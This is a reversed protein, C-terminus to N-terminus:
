RSFILGGVKLLVLPDEKRVVDTELVSEQFNTSSSHPKNIGTARGQFLEQQKEESVDKVVV